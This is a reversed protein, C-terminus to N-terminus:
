FGKENETLFAIEEETSIRGLVANRHPFRGFREIVRFHRHAYELVEDSGPYTECHSFLEVSRQQDAIEESHEFPLYFFMRHVPPVQEDHGRVLADHATDRAISDSVFARADERFMNRPFQDLLLILAMCPAVAERWSALAGTAAQDHIVM